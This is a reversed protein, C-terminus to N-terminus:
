MVDIYKVYKNIYCELFVLFINLVNMNRFDFCENSNLLYIEIYFIIIVRGLEVSNKNKRGIYDIYIDNKIKIVFM